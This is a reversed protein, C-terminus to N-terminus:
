AFIAQYRFRGDEPQIPVLFIELSGLSEHNLPHIGQPMLTDSSDEFVISFPARGSRGASWGRGVEGVEVLRLERELGVEVVQFVAGMLPRFSDVTLDQLRTM